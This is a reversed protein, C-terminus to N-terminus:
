GAIMLLLISLITAVAGVGLFIIGVILLIRATHSVAELRTRDPSRWQYYLEPDGAARLQDQEAPDLERERIVGDHAVWRVRMSPWQGILAAQTRVWTGDAAQVILRVLLALVGVSFGIWTFVEAILELVGTSEEM